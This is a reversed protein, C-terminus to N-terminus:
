RYLRVRGVYEDGAVPVGVMARRVATLRHRWECAAVEAMHVHLYPWDDTPVMPVHGRSPMELRVLDFVIGSSVLSEACAM